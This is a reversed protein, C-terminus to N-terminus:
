DFNGVVGILSLAFITAFFASLFTVNYINTPNSMIIERKM